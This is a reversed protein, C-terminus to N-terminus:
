EAKRITQALIHPGKTIDYLASVYRWTARKFLNLERTCCSSLFVITFNNQQRRSRDGAGGDMGGDTGGDIRSGCIWEKSCFYFEERKLRVSFKCNLSFCDLYLFWVALIFSFFLVLCKTMQVIVSWHTRGASLPDASQGTTPPSTCVPTASQNGSHPVPSSSPGVALRPAMCWGRNWWSWQSRRWPPSPGFVKNTM